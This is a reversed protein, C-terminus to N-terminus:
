ALNVSIPRNSYFIGANLCATKSYGHGIVLQFKIKVAPMRGFIYIKPLKKLVICLQLSHRTPKHNLTVQKGGCSGNRLPPAQMKMQMILQSHSHHTKNM